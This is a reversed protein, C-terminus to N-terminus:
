FQSIEEPFGRELRRWRTEAEVAWDMDRGTEGQAKMNWGALREEDIGWDRGRLAIM